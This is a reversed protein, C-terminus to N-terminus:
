RVAIVEIEVLANKPLTKVAIASRAPFPSQFFTEYVANMATFDAMDSLYVTTKVINDMSLGASELIAKVNTLSQRTQMTIDAPMAGTAPDIPLQGSAFVMSGTDIAQSYPGIAGPANATNIQNKM